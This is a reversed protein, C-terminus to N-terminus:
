ASGPPHRRQFEHLQKRIGLALEATVTERARDRYRGSSPPAEAEAAHALGEVEIVDIRGSRRKVIIEILTRKRFIPRRVGAIDEFRLVVEPRRQFFEEDQPGPGRGITIETSGVALPSARLSFDQRRRPNQRVVVEAAYRPVSTTTLSLYILYGLFATVVVAIIV